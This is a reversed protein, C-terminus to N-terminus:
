SLGVVQLKSRPDMLSNYENPNQKPKASSPILGPGTCRHPLHEKGPNGWLGDAMNRTDLDKSNELALQLTDKMILFHKDRGPTTPRVHTIETSLLSLFHCTQAVSFLWWGPSCFLHPCVSKIGASPLYFDVTCSFASSYRVCCHPAVNSHGQDSLFSITFLFGLRQSGHCPSTM